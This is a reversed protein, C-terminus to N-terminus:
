PTAADDVVSDHADSTNAVDLTLNEQDYTLM